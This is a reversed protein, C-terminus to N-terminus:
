RALDTEQHHVAMWQGNRKAWVTSALSTQAVPRNNFTGSGAWVYLVIASEPGLPTVHPNVMDWKTLKFAEPREVLLKMPIFGDRSTWTGDPFLLGRMSAQDARGVADLLAHEKDLLVKSTEDSGTSTAQRRAETVTFALCVMALIALSRVVM